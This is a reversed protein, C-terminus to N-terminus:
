QMELIETAALRVGPSVDMLAVDRLVTLLSPDQDLLRALGYVAGERVYCKEHLLFPLLVPAAVLGVKGVHDLAFTLDTPELTGSQILALLAPPDHEALYVFEEECHVTWTM